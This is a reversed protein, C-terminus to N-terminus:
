RELLFVLYNDRAVISNGQAVISDFHFIFPQVTGFFAVARTEKAMKGQLLLKIESDLCRKM